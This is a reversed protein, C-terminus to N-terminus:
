AYEGATPTASPAQTPVVTPVQTPQQTPATPVITPVQTPQQTPADTPGSRYICGPSPSNTTATIFFTGNYDTAAAIWGENGTPNM